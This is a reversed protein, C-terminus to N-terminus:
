DRVFCIVTRKMIENKRMPLARPSEVLQCYCTLAGLVGPSPTCTEDFLWLMAFAMLFLFHLFISYIYVRYPAQFSSMEKSRFGCRLEYLLKPTITILIAFIDHDVSACQCMPVDLVIMRPFM